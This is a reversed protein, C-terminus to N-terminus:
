WFPTSHIFVCNFAGSQAKFKLLLFLVHVSVVSVRSSNNLISCLSISGALCCQDKQMLFLAIFLCSWFHLNYRFSFWDYSLVHRLDAKSYLWLLRFGPYQFLCIKLSVTNLPPHSIWPLFHVHRTFFFSHIVLLNDEIAPFWYIIYVTSTFVM